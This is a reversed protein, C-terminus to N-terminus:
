RTNAMLLQTCAQVFATGVRPLSQNLSLYGPTALVQSQMVVAWTLAVHAAWGTRGDLGGLTCAVLRVSLLIALGLVGAPLARPIGCCVPHLGAAPCIIIICM